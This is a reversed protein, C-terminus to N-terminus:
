TAFSSLHCAFHCSSQNELTKYRETAALSEPGISQRMGPHLTSDVIKKAHWLEPTMPDTQGQKYSSILKKANELGANSVFLTRRVISNAQAHSRPSHLSPAM